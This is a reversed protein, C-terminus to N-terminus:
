PLFNYIRPMKPIVVDVNKGAKKLANYVALSSGIADGDPNNHTLIIIDKAKNIEKLIEDLTSM